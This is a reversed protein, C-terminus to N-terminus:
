IPACKSLRGRNLACPQVVTATFMTNQWPCASVLHRGRDCFIIMVDNHWEALFLKESDKTVIIMDYDCHTRFTRSHATYRCYSTTFIVTRFSSLRDNVDDDRSQCRNPELCSIETWKNGNSYSRTADCQVYITIYVARYPGTRFSM